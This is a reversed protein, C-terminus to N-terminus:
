LPESIPNGGAGSNDALQRTFRLASEIQKRSEPISKLFFSVEGRNDRLESVINEGAEHALARDPAHIEM